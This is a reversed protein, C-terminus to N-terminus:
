TRDSFLCIFFALLTPTPFVISLSWVRPGGQGSFWESWPCTEEEPSSEETVKQVAVFGLTRKLSPRWAGM